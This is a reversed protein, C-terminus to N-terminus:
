IKWEGIAGCKLARWITGSWIEKHGPRQAMSLLAGFMVGLWNRGLNLTLQEHRLKQCIIFVDLVINYNVKKDANNMCGLASLM